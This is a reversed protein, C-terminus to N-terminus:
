RLGAFFLAILVVPRALAAEALLNMEKFALM